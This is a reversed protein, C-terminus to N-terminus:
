AEEDVPICFFAEKLGLVTFRETNGLIQTPVTYPDPVTPYIPVIAENILRLDQVM